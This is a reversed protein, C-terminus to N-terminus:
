KSLICDITDLQVWVNCTDLDEATTALKNGNWSVTDTHKKPPLEEYTNLTHCQRALQACKWNFKLLRMNAQQQLLHMNKHYIKVICIVHSSNHYSDNPRQWDTQFYRKLRIQLM